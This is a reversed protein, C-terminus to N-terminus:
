DDEGVPGDDLWTHARGALNTAASRTTWLMRDGTECATPQRDCFGLLDTVTVQLMIAVEELQVPDTEMQRRQEEDVGTVLPLAIVIAGIWFAARFLFM